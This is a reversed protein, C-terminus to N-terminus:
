PTFHPILGQHVGPLRPSPGPVTLGGRPQSDNSCASRGEGMQWLRAVGTLLRNIEPNGQMM